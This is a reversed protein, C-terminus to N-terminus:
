PPTWDYPLLHFSVDLGGGYSPLDVLNAAAYGGVTVYPSTFVDVRLRPEVLWNARQIQYGGINSLVALRGGFVVEVGVSVDRGQMAVGTRLGGQFGFGTTGGPANPKQGSLFAPGVILDPGVYFPGGLFTRMPQLEFGVLTMKSGVFANPDLSPPAGTVGKGAQVTPHDFAFTRYALGVGWSMRPFWEPMSWRGYTACESRGVVAGPPCAPVYSHSAMLLMAATIM